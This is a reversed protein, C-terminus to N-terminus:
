PVLEIVQWTDAELNFLQRSHIRDERNLDLFEIQSAILNIGAVEPPAKMEDAKYVEKLRQVEDVLAARSSISSSQQAFEKYVYDLYKSGQPRRLWNQTVIDAAMTEATGRIRYQHQRSPYWLLLEYDAGESFLKWKPSTQNIFITLNNEEIDRLVLTRISAKGSSDALALFCLDANADGLKRAEIRDQIILKTPNM